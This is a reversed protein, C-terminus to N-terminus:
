RITIAPDGAGRIARHRRRFHKTAKVNCTALASGERLAGGDSAEEEEAEAGGGESDSQFVPQMDTLLLALKELDSIARKQTPTAIDTDETTEQEEIAARQIARVSVSDDPMIASTKDDEDYGSTVSVSLPAALGDRSSQTFEDRKSIAPTNASPAAPRQGLELREPSAEEEDEEEDEADTAISSETEPKTGELQLIFLDVAFRNITSASTELAVSSM